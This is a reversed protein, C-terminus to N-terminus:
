YVESFYNSNSKILDRMRTRAVVNGTHICVDFHTNSIRGMHILQELTTLVNFFEGGHTNTLADETDNDIDLFFERVGEKYKRKIAKLADNTTTVSADFPQKNLAYTPTAREDDIWLCFM